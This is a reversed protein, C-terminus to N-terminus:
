GLGGVECGPTVPAAAEAHTGFFAPPEGLSVLEFGGLRLILLVESPLYLEAEFSQKILAFSTWSM